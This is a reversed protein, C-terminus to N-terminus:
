WESKSAMWAKTDPHLDSWTKVYGKVQDALQITQEYGQKKIFEQIEM